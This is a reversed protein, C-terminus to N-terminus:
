AFGLEGAGQITLALNTDSGGVLFDTAEFRLAGNWDYASFPLIGIGNGIVETGVVNGGTMGKWLFFKAATSTRNIIRVNRLIIFPQALTIGTPGALDAVACNLINRTTENTLSVPGFNIIKNQM